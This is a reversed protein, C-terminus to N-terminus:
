LAVSKKVFYIFTEGKLFKLRLIRAWLDYDGETLKWGLKALLAKDMNTTKWIGHGGNKKLCCVSDWKVLAMKRSGESGRWFFSRNLADIKKEMSILLKSTQMIYNTIINTVSQILTARGVLSSQKANWSSLRNKVKEVLKRYFNKTVRSSHIPVGLYIGFEEYHQMGIVAGIHERNKSVFLSIFQEFKDVQVNGMSLRWLVWIGDSFGRADVKMSSDFALGKIVRDMTQGSVKPEMSSRWLVWIGSSFGRADVKTSSDFALRKIVKDTTQGSVKPKAIILMDLSFSYSFEKAHHLFDVNRAGRCNWYLISM